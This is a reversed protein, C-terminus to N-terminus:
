PRERVLWEVQFLVPKMVTVESNPKLLLATVPRSGAREGYKRLFIEVTLDPGSNPRPCIEVGNVGDFDVIACTGTVVKIKAVFGDTRVQFSWAPLYPRADGRVSPVQSQAPTHRLTVAPSAPALFYLVTICAVVVVGLAVRSRTPRPVSLLGKDVVLPGPTATISDPQPVPAADETGPVLESPPENNDLDPPASVAEGSEPVLDPVDPLIGEGRDLRMRWETLEEPVAFVSDRGRGPIRHVPLNREAEWRRVSRESIGLFAAIEKWGYLCSQTPQM